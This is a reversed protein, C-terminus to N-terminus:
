GRQFFNSKKSKEFKKSKNDLFANKRELIDLICKGPRYQRFLFTPYITMKRSFGYKLGTPFIDIKRSNSSRRKIAKFPTTEYFLITFSM